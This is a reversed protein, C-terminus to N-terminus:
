RPPNWGGPEESSRAIRLLTALNAQLRRFLLGATALGLVGWVALMALEFRSRSGVVILLVVSLLPLFAALLLFAGCAKSLWKLDARDDETLSDPEMLAPYFAGVAISTVGFFPYAMAILGCLALSAAFHLDFSPPVTGIQWRIALPYAPAALLWLSISIVAAAV